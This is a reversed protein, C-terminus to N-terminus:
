QLYRVRQDQPHSKGTPLASQGGEKLFGGGLLGKSGFSAGFNPDSIGTHVMLDSLRSGKKGSSYPRALDVGFGLGQVRVGRGSGPVMLM